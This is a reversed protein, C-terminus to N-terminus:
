RKPDIDLELQEDDGPDLELDPMEEAQDDEPSDPPAAPDLSKLDPGLSAWHDDIEPGVQGTQVAALAASDAVSQLRHKTGLWAGVDVVFALLVVLGTLIAVFLVLTQGHEAHLADNLSARM